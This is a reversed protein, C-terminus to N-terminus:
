KDKGPVSMYYLITLRCYYVYSMDTICIYMICNM